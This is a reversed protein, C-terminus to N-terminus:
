EQKPSVVASISVSAQTYIGAERWSLSGSMSVAVVEGEVPDTLVHVLAGAADQVAQKETAHQPQGEVVRVLEATIKEVAEVKSAAVVGFSYSM